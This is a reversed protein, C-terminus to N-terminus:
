DQCSLSLSQVSSVFVSSPRSRRETTGFCSYRGGEIDELDMGHRRERYFPEINEPHPLRKTRSSRRFRTWSKWLRATVFKRLVIKTWRQWTKVEEHSFRNSIPIQLVGLEDVILQCECLDFTFECGNCFLAPESHGVPISHVSLAANGCLPLRPSSFVPTNPMVPTPFTLILSPIPPYGSPSDSQNDLYHSLSLLKVYLSITGLAQCSISKLIFSPQLISGVEEEKENDALVSTVNGFVPTDELIPSLDIEFSESIRTQSHSRHVQPLQTSVLKQHVLSLPPELLNVPTSEKTSM